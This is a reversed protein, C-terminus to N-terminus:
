VSAKKIILKEEGIPHFNLNLSHKYEPALSWSFSIVGLTNGSYCLEYGDNVGVRFIRTINKYDEEM